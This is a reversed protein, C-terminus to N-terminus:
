VTKFQEGKDLRQQQLRKVLAILGDLDDIATMVAEWTPGKISFQYDKRCNVPPGTIHVGHRQGLQKINHGNKGVVEAAIAQSEVKVFHEVTSSARFATAAPPWQSMIGYKYQSFCTYTAATPAPSTERQCRPVFPPADVSLPRATSAHRPPRSNTNNVENDTPIRWTSPSLAMDVEHYFHNRPSTIPFCSATSTYAYLM